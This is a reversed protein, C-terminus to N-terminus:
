IKLLSEHLLEVCEDFLIRNGQNMLELIEQKEILYTKAFRLDNEVISKTNSILDAYKISQSKASITALRKAENSKRKARNLYPYDEKTYKDTLETVGSCIGYATNNDYGISVLEKHLADFDCDTDEFLDHCLAVEFCDALYRSVSIAVELCHEYYPEGTYKRVQNGHKMAVFALLKNQKENM